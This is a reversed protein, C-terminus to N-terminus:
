LTNLEYLKMQAGPRGNHLEDGAIQEDAAAQGDAVQYDTTWTLPKLVTMSISRLPENWIHLAANPERFSDPSENIILM